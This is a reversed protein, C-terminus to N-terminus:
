GVKGDFFAAIRKTKRLAAIDGPDPLQPKDRVADVMCLFGLPGDSLARFQHWSMPPVTVLDNTELEVVEAGILARGRGRLILVGHVHQHKELTSFGNPGVEFYRLEGAIDPRHFLTQRTVDKFLAREDEKYPHVEVRDWLHGPKFARRASGQLAPTDNRDSM